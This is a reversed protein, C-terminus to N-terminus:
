LLRPGRRRVRSRPPRRAAHRAASGRRCGPRAPAERRHPSRSSTVAFRAAYIAGAFQVACGAGNATASFVSTLPRRCGPIANRAPPMLRTIRPLTRLIRVCSPWALIARALGTLEAEVRIEDDVDIGVVDIDQRPRLEDLVDFVRDDAVIALRHGPVPGTRSVARKHVIGDAQRELVGGPADRMLGGEGLMHGVYPQVASGFGAGAPPAGRCNKQAKRWHRASGPSSRRRSPWRRPPLRVSKRAPRASRRSGATRGQHFYTHPM